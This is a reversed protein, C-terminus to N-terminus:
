CNSYYKSKNGFVIGGAQIGRKWDSLSLMSDGLEDVTGFFVHQKRTTEWFLQKETEDILQSTPEPVMSQFQHCGIRDNADLFVANEIWSTIRANMFALTIECNDSNKPPWVQSSM